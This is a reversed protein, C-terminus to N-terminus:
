KALVLKKGDFTVTQGGVVIKDKIVKVEPAEGKKKLTLVAFTKGDLEVSTAAVGAGKPLNKPVGAGGLVIVADAGLAGSYDVALYSGSGSLTGSGNVAPSFHEAKGKRMQGLTLRQGLGWVRVTAPGDRRAGLLVGVIVDHANKWRNRFVYYGMKEDGVARPIVGEPNKAEVGIPWNVLALM